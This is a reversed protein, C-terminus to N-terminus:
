KLKAISTNLRMTTPQCSALLMRVVSSSSPQPDREPEPFGAGVDREHVV